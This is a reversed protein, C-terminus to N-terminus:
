HYLTWCDSLLSVMWLGQDNNNFKVSKFSM